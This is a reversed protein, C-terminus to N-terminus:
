HHDFIQPLFFKKKSGTQSKPKSFFWFFNKNQFHNQFLKKQFKERSEQQIKVGQWTSLTLEWVYATSAEQQAAKNFERNKSAQVMEQQNLFSSSIPALSWAGPKTSPQEQVSKTIADQTSTVTGYKRKQSLIWM